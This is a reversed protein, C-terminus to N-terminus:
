AMPRSLTSLQDYFTDLADERLYKEATSMMIEVVKAIEEEPRDHEVCWAIRDQLGKIVQLRRNESTTMEFEQLRPFM